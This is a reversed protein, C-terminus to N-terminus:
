TTGVACKSVGVLRMANRSRRLWCHSAVAFLKSDFAKLVSVSEPDRTRPSPISPRHFDRCQRSTLRMM